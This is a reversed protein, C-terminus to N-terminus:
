AYCHRYLQQAREEIHCMRYIRYIRYVRRICPDRMAIAISSSLASKWIACVTYVTYVAYAPTACLLPSLAASRRAAQRIRWSGSQVFHRRGRGEGRYVRVCLGLGYVCIRWPTSYATYALRRRLVVAEARGEAYVM